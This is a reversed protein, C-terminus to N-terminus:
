SGHGTTTKIPQPLPTLRKIFYTVRRTQLQIYKAFRLRFTFFQVNKCKVSFCRIMPTTVIIPVRYCMIHM